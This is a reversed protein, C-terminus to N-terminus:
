VPPDLSSRWRAAVAAQDQALAAASVPPKKQNEATTLVQQAVLLGAQASQLAVAASGPDPATVPLGESAPIEPLPRQVMRQPARRFGTAVEPQSRPSASLAPASVLTIWLENTGQVFLARGSKADLKKLEYGFAREGVRLSAQEGSGGNQVCALHCGPSDILGTLQLGDVAGYLNPALCAAFIAVRHLM